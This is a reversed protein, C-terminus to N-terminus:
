MSIACSDTATFVMFSHLSGYPARSSYPVSLFLCHFYKSIFEPELSFPQSKVWTNKVGYHWRKSLVANVLCVATFLFCCLFSYHINFSKHLIHSEGGGVGGGGGVVMVVTMLEVARSRVRVRPIHGSRFNPLAFRTAANPKLALNQAFCSWLQTMM